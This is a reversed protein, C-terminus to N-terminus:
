LDKGLEYVISGTNKNFAIITNETIPERTGQYQNRLNFTQQNWVRNARHFVVVNNFMDFCVASIAGLTRGPKPWNDQMVYALISFHLM